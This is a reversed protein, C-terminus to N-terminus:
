DDKFLALRAADPRQRVFEAAEVENGFSALSSIFRDLLQRKQIRERQRELSLTASTYWASVARGFLRVYDDCDHRLAFQDLILQPIGYGLLRRLACNVLAFALSQNACAFPHLRVFRWHFRGLSAVSEAPFGPGSTRLGDAWDTRLRDIHVSTMPRPPLFWESDGEDDRARATILHGWDLEDNKGTGPQAQTLSMRILRHYVEGGVAIAKIRPGEIIYQHSGAAVTRTERTYFAGPMVRVRAIPSSPRYFSDFAQGLLLQVHRRRLWTAFLHPDMPVDISSDVDRTLKGVNLWYNRVIEYPSAPFRVIETAAVENELQALAEPAFIFRGFGVRLLCDCEVRSAGSCFPLDILVPRQRLAEVVAFLTRPQLGPVLMPPTDSSLQIAASGNHELAKVSELLMLRDADSIEFRIRPQAFLYDDLKPVPQKELWSYYDVLVWPVQLISQMLEADTM